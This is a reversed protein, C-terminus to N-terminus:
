IRNRLGLQDPYPTLYVQQQVYASGHSAIFTRLMAMPAILPVMNQRYEEILKLLQNRETSDISKKVYGLIHMMANTHSKRNARRKLAEMFQQFYENLLAQLPVKRGQAVVQGLQAYGQPYHAMLLYKHAAHFDVLVGYSPQNMVTQHWRHHAYVRIFFNECLVPDHLRGEEEVPLMPMAEILAKAYAGPASEGLPHGNVHYVKVREMGCSPSKQMLIYGSIHHLAQAKNHGYQNLADTVDLASNDSGVVRVHLQKHPASFSSQGGPVLVLDGVLRIPQRPIGLGIAVEPCVPEFHFFRDLTNVCFSSRKHGGDYRVKQGLLCSSIGLTIEKVPEPLSVIAM